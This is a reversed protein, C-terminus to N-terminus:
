RSRPGPWALTFMDLCTLLRCSIRTVIYPERSSPSTSDLGPLHLCTLRSCSTRSSPAIQQQPEALGTWAHRPMLAASLFDM